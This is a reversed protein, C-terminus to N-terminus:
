ADAIYEDEGPLGEDLEDALKGLAEDEPVDEVLIGRVDMKGTVVDAILRIRYEQMLDIQGNMKEILRDTKTTEQTLREAIRKQELLLPLPIETNRLTELSLNDITTGAFSLRFCNNVFSSQLYFYAFMNHVYDPCEIYAASKGLIIKEGKYIALNGITGNISILIAGTRLSIRLKSYEEEDVLGTNEYISIKGSSLNNGHADLM